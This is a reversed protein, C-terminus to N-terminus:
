NTTNWTTGRMEGNYNGTVDSFGVGAVKDLPFFMELNAEAGTISTGLDGVARVENWIRFDKISGTM